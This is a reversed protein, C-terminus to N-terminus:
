TYARDDLIPCQNTAQQTLHPRRASGSAAAIKPYAMASLGSSSIPTRMLREELCFSTVIAVVAYTANSTQVDCKPNNPGRCTAVLQRFIPPKEFIM